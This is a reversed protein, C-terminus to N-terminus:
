TDVPKQAAKVEAALFKKIWRMNAIAGRQREETRQESGVILAERLTHEKEELLKVFEPWWGSALVAKAIRLREAQSLREM